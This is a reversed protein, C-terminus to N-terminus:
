RRARHPGKANLGLGIVSRTAPRHDLHSTQVQHRLWYELRLTHMLPVLPVREGNRAKQLARHYNQADVFGLSVSVMTRTLEAPSGHQSAIAARPGRVVFAKRKRNLIEAPVTNLLARRMLSRREGPRILQNRPIAFLFQLLDRDLYPYRMEYIPITPQAMSALQRRLMELAGLNEQFSPLPGLLQLRKKYGSLAMRHRKVFSEQLWPLRETGAADFLRASCFTRATELLLHIWPRRSSLAWAKLKHILDMSRARAFLDALEPIPTPVGGLMEDGGIGSILVRNDRSRLCDIFQQGAPDPLKTSAPTMATCDHDFAQDTDLGTNIHCGSRGRIEEVKTFYPRENWNPESDDYYSVTDLRSTEARGDAIVKDAMCVISSSDMGGSLEALVPADSRLRRRVSEDFVSRFHEEYEYDNAYRIQKQPDFDWYKQVTVGSMKISVCSSPPVAYIGVYPTLHTAPFFGLWGAIYEEEIQFTKTSLLVLPDLVSSWTVSQSDYTYYLHRAGAFDKALVLSRDAPNWVSLAWDGLLTAFCDRISREYAAAVIAVDACHPSLKDRLTAILELRNDLRGDWTFVLGSPTVYPQTELRSQKTTHFAHYFISVSANQYSRGGDPGHLRLIAQVREFYTRDIPRADFNWQGFQVSM